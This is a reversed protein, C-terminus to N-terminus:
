EDDEPDDNRVAALEASLTAPSWDLNKWIESKELDTEVVLYAALYRDHAALFEVPVFNEPDDPVEYDVTARLGRELPSDGESTPAENPPM